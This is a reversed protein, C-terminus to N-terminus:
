TASDMLIVVLQFREFDFQLHPPAYEKKEGERLAAIADIVITNEGPQLKVEYSGDQQVQQSRWQHVLCVKWNNRSRLEATIEPKVVL